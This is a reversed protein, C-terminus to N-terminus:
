QHQGQAETCDPTTLDAGLPGVVLCGGIGSPILGGAPIPM